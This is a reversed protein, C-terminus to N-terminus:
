PRYCRKGSIAVPGVYGGHRLNLVSIGKGVDAGALSAGRPWDGLKARVTEADAHGLDELIALARRWVEQAAEPRGAAQHTDGLNTLTGAQFYRDGLDEFLEIAGGIAPM